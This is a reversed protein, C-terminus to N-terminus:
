PDRTLRVNYFIASEIAISGNAEQQGFELDFDVREEALEADVTCGSERCHCVEKICLDIYACDVPQDALFCGDSGQLYGQYSECFYTRELGGPTVVLRPTQLECWGKWLETPAISFRLRSESLQAGLLTFDFGEYPLGLAYSVEIGPNPPYGVDPDTPPPMSPEAGFRVTGQIASGEVTDIDLQVADSGSRFKFNEVYGEWHAVLLAAAGSGGGSGGGGSSAEDGGIPLDQSQCGINGLSAAAFLLALAVRTSHNM